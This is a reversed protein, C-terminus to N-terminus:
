RYNFPKNGKDRLFNQFIRFLFTAMFLPCKFLMNFHDVFKFQFQGWCVRRMIMLKIKPFEVCEKYPLKYGLRGLNREFRTSNEGWWQPRQTKMKETGM